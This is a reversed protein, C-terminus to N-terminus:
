PDLHAAVRHGPDRSDIGTDDRIEKVFVITACEAGSNLLRTPRKGSREPQAADTHVGDIGAHHLRLAHTGGSEVLAVETLLDLRRSWQSADALRLVDRGRRTERRAWAPQTMPSVSTM